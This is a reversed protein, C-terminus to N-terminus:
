VAISLGCIEHVSSSYQVMTRQNQIRKSFKDDSHLPTLYNQAPVEDAQSLNSIETSIELVAEPAFSLLLQQAAGKIVDCFLPEASVSLPRLNLFRLKM